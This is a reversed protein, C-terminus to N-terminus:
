NALFTKLREFEELTICNFHIGYTKVSQKLYARVVTVELDMPEKHDMQLRLRLVQGPTLQMSTEVLSGTVSLNLLRGVGQLLVGDQDYFEVAGRASMRRSQRKEQESM